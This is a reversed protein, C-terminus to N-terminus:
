YAETIAANIQEDTMKTTKTHRKNSRENNFALRKGRGELQKNARLLSSM